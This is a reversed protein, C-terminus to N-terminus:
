RKVPAADTTQVFLVVPNTARLEPLFEDIYSRQDILNAITAVAAQGGICGSVTQVTTTDAAYRPLLRKFEKEDLIRLGMLAYLQAVTTGTRTLNRLRPVANLEQTMCRLAQVSESKKGEFGISPGALVQADRLAEYNSDHFPVCEATLAVSSIQEAVEATGKGDEISSGCASVLLALLTTLGQKSGM